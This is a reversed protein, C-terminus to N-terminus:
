KIDSFIIDIVKQACNGTQWANFKQNFSELFSYDDHIQYQHVM